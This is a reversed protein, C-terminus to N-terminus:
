YYTATPHHLWPIFETYPVYVESPLKDLQCDSIAVPMSATRRVAHSDGRQITHSLCLLRSKSIVREDFKILRSNSPSSATTVTSGCCAFDGFLVHFESQVTGDLRSSALPALWVFAVFLKIFLNGIELNSQVRIEPPPPPSKVTRLVLIGLLQGLVAEQETQVFWNGEILPIVM